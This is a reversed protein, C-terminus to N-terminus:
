QGSNKLAALRSVLYHLVREKSNKQAVAMAEKLAIELTKDDSNNELHQVLMQAARLSGQKAALSLANLDNVKPSLDAQHELLYAIVHMSGNKVATMLLSM